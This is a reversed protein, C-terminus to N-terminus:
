LHSIMEKEKSKEQKYHLKFLMKARLGIIAPVTLIGQYNM